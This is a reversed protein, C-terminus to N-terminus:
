PSMNVNQRPPENSSKTNKIHFLSAENSFAAESITKNPSNNEDDGYGIM